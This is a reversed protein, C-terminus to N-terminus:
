IKKFSRPIYVRYYICNYTKRFHPLYEESRITSICVPYTTLVIDYDQFMSPDFHLGGSVGRVLRPAIASANDQGTDDM